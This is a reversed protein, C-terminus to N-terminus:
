GAEPSALVRRRSFGGPPATGSAILVRYDDRGEILQPLHDFGTAFREVIRLLEFTQFDNVSPEGNLGREPRLQRDLDESFSSTSRVVRRQESM